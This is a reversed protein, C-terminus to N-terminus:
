RGAADRGGCCRDPRGLVRGAAEEAGPQEDDAGLPIRGYRGAALWIVYVVFGSALLVFLWGTNQEVWGLASTSATGLGTADVIGWAVFALAIVATVGFTVRDLGSGRSRSGPPPPTAIAPHAAHDPTETQSDIDIAM